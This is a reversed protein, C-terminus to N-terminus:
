AVAFSWAFTGFTAAVIALAAFQARRYDVPTGLYRAIVPHDRRGTRAWALLALWLMFSFLSVVNLLALM